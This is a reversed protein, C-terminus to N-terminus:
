DDPDPEDADDPEETDPLAYEAAQRCLHLPLPLVLDGAFSDSAQRLAHALSAWVLPDDNTQQAAVTLEVLQPNWAPAREIVSKGTRTTRPELRSGMPSGHRKASAPKTAVSFFVRRSNPHRWLGSPLGIQDAYRGYGEPTESGLDSRIRVHRLHPYCDVPQDTAGLLLIDPRLQSNQLGPWATRLNQAHSFLVVPRDASATTALVEDVFRATDAEDCRGLGGVTTKALELLADKYSVWHTMGGARCYVQPSDSSAWIAIPRQVRDWALSAANRRIMWVAVYDVPDPMTVGRVAARLPTLRPAVQRRLDTWASATRLQLNYTEDEEDPSPTVLFQTHRGVDALGLRLARKPDTRRNTFQALDRIEVIATGGVDEGFVAAVETRRADVARRLQLERNRVGRDLELPAALGGVRRCRLEVTIEPGKWTITDGDTSTEETTLGFSDGIADVVAARVETTDWLLDVAFFDAAASRVFAGRRQEATTPPLSKRTLPTRQLPPCREILDHLGDTVWDVLQDRERAHTGAPARHTYGARSGYVLAAAPRSDFLCTPDGTVQKLDPLPRELQLQDFVNALPKHWHLIRGDAHRHWRLPAVRFSTSVDSAPLLPLESLMYLSISQGGGNPPRPCWRRIGTTVHLVPQPQFPLTQVSLRLRYSYPWDTNHGEVQLPPWSVLEVGRGDGTPCRRFGRPFGVPRDSGRLLETALIEPVLSFLHAPFNAIADTASSTDPAVQPADTLWGLDRSAIPKWLLVDLDLSQWAEDATAEDDGFQARVWAHLIPV